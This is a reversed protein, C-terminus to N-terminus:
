RLFQCRLVASEASGHNLAGAQIGYGVDQFTINAYENGTDFGLVKGDWSQDVGILAKGSNGDFTLRGLRSYRVGNLQLMTGGQPGDWKITTNSPDQGVVYINIHSTMVLIQTIRYTGTPLYLVKPHNTLTLDNLAQQLANTDDNFEDGAAHYDTRLNSWSPFPGIFYQQTMSASGQGQAPTLDILNAVAAGAVFGSATKIVQRRTIGKSVINSCLQLKESPM